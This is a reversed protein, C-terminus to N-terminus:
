RGGSLRSPSKPWPSSSTAFGSLVYWDDYYPMRSGFRWVVRVANAIMVSCTLAVVMLECRANLSMSTLSPRGNRELM